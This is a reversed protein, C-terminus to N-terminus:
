FYTSAFTLYDTRLVLKHETSKILQRKDGPYLSGKMIIVISWIM